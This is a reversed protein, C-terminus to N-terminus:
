LWSVGPIAPVEAAVGPLDHVQTPEPRSMREDKNPPYISYRDSGYPRSVSDTGVPM